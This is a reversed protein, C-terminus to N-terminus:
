SLTQARSRANTKSCSCSNTGREQYQPSIRQSRQPLFLDLIQTYWPATHADAAACKHRGFVDDRNVPWQILLM